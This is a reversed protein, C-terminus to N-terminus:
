QNAYMTSSDPKPSLCLYCATRLFTIKHSMDLCAWAQLQAFISSLTQWEHFTRKVYGVAHLANTQRQRSTQKIFSSDALAFNNLIKCESGDPGLPKGQLLNRLKSILVARLPILGENFCCCHCRNLEIFTLSVQMTIRSIGLAQM